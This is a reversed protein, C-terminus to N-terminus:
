YQKLLMTCLMNFTSCIHDICIQITHVIHDICVQILHVIHDICVQKTHIPKKARECNLM